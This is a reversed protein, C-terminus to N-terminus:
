PTRPPPAGQEQLQKRLEEQQKKLEALRAAEEDAQRNHEAIRQNEEIRAVSQPDGASRYANKAEEFSRQKEFVFGLQRWVRAKENASATRDLSRRLAAEAEDYKATATLAQGAYFHPLWDGSSKASAQGFTSAAAAYQGAGLQTEGLLLLNDYSPDKGSLGRAVNAAKIYAAEKAPGRSERGQRVLAQVLVRQKEADGPDLRVARELASIATATNGANLAFIGYSYQIGADSPSAAAAKELASAARDTQGTDAAAKAQLQQYRGQREKPVGAVNVKSLLQSAESPRRASLYAQALALQTELDSPDLDYARRLTSVADSTRDLHLQTRGLMLYGGAWDSRERVVSEFERAAVTYNKSKFAAVGEEWGAHGPIAVLLTGATLMWGIRSRMFEVERAAKGAAHLSGKLVFRAPATCSGNL